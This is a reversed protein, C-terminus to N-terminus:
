SMVVGAVGETSSASACSTDVRKPSSIDLACRWLKSARTAVLQRADSSGASKARAHRFSGRAVRINASSAGRTRARSLTLVLPATKASAVIGTSREAAPGDLQLSRAVLAVGLDALTHRGGDLEVGHRGFGFIAARTISSTGATLVLGDDDRRHEVILDTARVATRTTAVATLGSAVVDVRTLAAEGDTLQLGAGDGDTELALAVDTAELRSRNATVFAGRAVAALDVLTLRGADALLLATTPADGSLVAARITLAARDVRALPRANAARARARDLTVTSGRSAEIEAGDLVVEDFQATGGVFEVVAPGARPGAISLRKGSVRSAVLRWLRADTRTSTPATLAVDELDLEADSTVLGDPGPPEWSVRALRAPARQVDLTGVFRLGTLTLPATAELQGSVTLDDPCRGVITLARPPLADITLAGRAAITDVDAPLSALSLTRAPRARTGDGPAGPETDVFWTRAEDLDRPFDDCAGLSACGGDVTLREDRDCAAPMSMPPPSCRLLELGSTTTAIPVRVGCGTPGRSTALAPPAPPTPPQSPPTPSPIPGCPRACLRLPGASSTDRVDACGGSAACANDSLAPLHTTTLTTPLGDLPQGRDDELAVLPIPRAGPAESAVLDVPQPADDDHPVLARYPLELTALLVTTTPQLDGPVDTTGTLPARRARSAAPEIIVLALTGGEAARSPPATCSAVLAVLPAVVVASRTPTM